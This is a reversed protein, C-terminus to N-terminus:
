KTLKEPIDLVMLLMAQGYTKGQADNQLTESVGGGLSDKLIFNLALLNDLEYRIVSGKVISGFHDKVKSPTLTKKAWKYCEQNKFLVGVNAHNGKDGSRAHAIKNLQIIM